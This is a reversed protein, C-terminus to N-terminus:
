KKKKAPGKKNIPKKKVAPKKAVVTAAEAQEKQFWQYARYAVFGILSLMLFWSAILSLGSYITPINPKFEFILEHSGAPIEAARLIYNARLIASKEGDITLTWGKDPGYWVESFVALQAANSNTQYVLRNPAYDIMEITGSGDGTSVEPFEDQKIIATTAPDITNLQDIEERASTVKVLDKVFWANGFAAPNQQLQGQQNIVYKTNLMNLVAQNNQSIHYDSIDQFRQLKAAYYGGITNHHFSTRADNFTNISLDLVRYYGRGKPELQFIQNDVPRPNFQGEYEREVKYNDIDLYRRNVAYIDLVILLGLGAFVMWKSKIYDKVTAWILGSTVLVLLFARFADARLFDQRQEIFIAQIQAPYRADGASLFSFLGSGILGMILSFGGVIGTAIMLDKIVKGKHENTLAQQLGLFSSIILFVPLVSLMSSHARFKNFLPLYDYMPRVLWSANKGLSILVGILVAALISWRLSPSLQLL